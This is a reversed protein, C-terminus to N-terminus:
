EDVLKLTDVCILIWLTVVIKSVSNNEGILPIAM